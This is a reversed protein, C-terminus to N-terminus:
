ATALDPQQQEVQALRELMLKRAAEANNRLYQRKKYQNFSRAEDGTLHYTINVTEVSKDKEVDSLSNQKSKM